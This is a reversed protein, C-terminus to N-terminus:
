SRRTGPERQLHAQLLDIAEPAARRRLADVIAGHEELFGAARRPETGVTTRMLREQRDRMRDYTALLVSNGAAQVWARHLERDVDVFAVLDQTALVRTQQDLLSDLLHLLADTVQVAGLAWTEVVLRAEVIDDAERVSLPLVLAGRKPYLAILGDRELLVMAERVPTRSVGLEGALANESVLDGEALTGDLLRRKIEHYAASAASPALSPMAAM